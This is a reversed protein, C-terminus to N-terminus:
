LLQIVLIRGVIHLLLSPCMAFWNRLDSDALFLHVLEYAEGFSRCASLLFVQGCVTFPISLQFSRIFQFLDNFLRNHFSLSILHHVLNILMYRVSFMNRVLVIIYQQFPSIFLLFHPRVLLQLYDLLPGLQLEIIDILLRFVM